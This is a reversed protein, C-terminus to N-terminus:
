RPKNGSSASKLAEMMVGEPAKKGFWMRFQGLAQAVLVEHGSVTSCGLAKAKQILRTDGSKTYVLDVVIGKLLKEDVPMEGKMGLSTCNILIDYDKKLDELNGYSGGYKKALEKAKGVTRNLVKLSGGEAAVGYAIAKAAGGAGLIVVKKGKISAKKKLSDMGGIVDTNYGKLRGNIKVVTNVAGISAAASDIGDLFRMIAEKHPITVAFGQVLHRFGDVFSGVDSSVPFKVHVANIKLANYAANFMYPSSSHNEQSGVVGLLMTGADLKDARYVEKMESAALQGPAAEKEPALSAYAMFGGFKRYLIRSITGLPGMCFVAAKRGNKKAEALVDFAKLNDNISNAMVAIKVISAESSAMKRYIEPLNDPTGKFDHYSLILGQSCCGALEGIMGKATGFEVDVFNAGISKGADMLIGLREKESGEYSGGQSKPRCTVIVPKKKVAAIKRLDCKGMLDLRFEVLDAIQQARVFDALAGSGGSTVSVCIM